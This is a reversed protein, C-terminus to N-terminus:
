SKLQAAVVSDLIGGVSALLSHMTSHVAVTSILGDRDLELMVVGSHERGVRFPLAHTDTPHGDRTQATGSLHGTFRFDPPFVSRVMALFGGEVERREIPRTKLPSYLRVDTAMVAVAADVDGSEVAVRWREVTSM